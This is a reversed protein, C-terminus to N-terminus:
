SSSAGEDDTGEGADANTTAAASATSSLTIFSEPAPIRSIVPSVFATSNTGQLSTIIPLRATATRSASGGATATRAASVSPRAVSVSPTTEESEDVCGVDYFVLDSSRDAEFNGSLPENFLMCVNGKDVAFSKCYHLGACRTSCASYTTLSKSTSQYYNNDMDAYGKVGCIDIDPKTARMWTPVLGASTFASGSSLLFLSYALFMTLSFESTLTILSSLTFPRARSSLQLNITIQPRFSTSLSSLVPLLISVKYVEGHHRPRSIWPADDVGPAEDIKTM